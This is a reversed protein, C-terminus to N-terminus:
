GMKRIIAAENGVGATADAFTEWERNGAGDVADVGGVVELFRAALYESWLKEWLAEIRLRKTTGECCDASPRWEFKRARIWTTRSWYAMCNIPQDSISIILLHWWFCGFGM